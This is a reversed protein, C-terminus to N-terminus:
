NTFLQSWYIVGNKQYVGIGVKGFNANMINARHGSSNMWANVVEQPTKQGYAINEGATRYSIGYEKLVTSFTTGNPRTHSFSQVTEQARLNAAAQLTSNTTLASLGAKAREQNVLQLVQDAYSSISSNTNSNTTQAPKTTQVPKTGNTTGTSTSAPTKTPAPAATSNNNGSKNLSALIDELSANQNVNNMNINKYGNQQLVQVVEQANSCQSLDINKYVYINNAKSSNVPATKSANQVDTKSANGSVPVSKQTNQVATKSANGSAPVAKQTNQVATKSANSSAPVAKQTNKAATENKKATNINEANKDSAKAKQTAPAAAKDEAKAESKDEKQITPTAADADAAAETVVATDNYTESDAPLNKQEDAKDTYQVVATNDSSSNSADNNGLSLQNVGFTGAVSLAVSCLTVIIKKM